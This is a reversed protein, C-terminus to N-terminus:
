ESPKPPWDPLPQGNKVGIGFEKEDDRIVLFTSDPCNLSSELAFFDTQEKQPYRAAVKPTGDASIENVRWFRARDIPPEIRWNVPWKWDSLFSLLGETETRSGSRYFEKEYHFPFATFPSPGDLYISEVHPKWSDRISLGPRILQVPFDNIQNLFSWAYPEDPWQTERWYFNIAPKQKEWFEIIFPKGGKCGGWYKGPGIGDIWDDFPPVPLEALLTELEIETLLAHDLSFGERKRWAM